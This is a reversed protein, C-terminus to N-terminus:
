GSGAFSGKIHYLPNEGLETIFYTCARGSKVVHLVDDHEHNLEKHVWACRDVIQAPLFANYVDLIQRDGLFILPTPKAPSDM